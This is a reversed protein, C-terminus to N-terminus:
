FGRLRPFLLPRFRRARRGSRSVVWNEGSSTTMVGPMRLSAGSGDYSVLNVGPSQMLFAQSSQVSATPNYFMTGGSGAGSAPNYFMTGNSGASTTTNYFRTGGSGNSVSRVSPYSSVSPYSYVVTSTTTTGPASITGNPCVQLGTTPDIICDDTQVSTLKESLKTNETRLDGIKEKYSSMAADIDALRVNAELLQEDLDGVKDSLADLKDSVALDQRAIIEALSNTFERQAERLREGQQSDVEQFAKNLADALGSDELLQQDAPSLTATLKPEVQSQSVTNIFVCILLAPVAVAVFRLM